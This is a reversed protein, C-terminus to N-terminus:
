LLFDAAGVPLEALEPAVDSPDPRPDGRGRGFLTIQLRDGEAFSFDEIQRFGGFRLEAIPLRFTDAGPGGHLRDRGPGDVLLDDGQGGWLADNGRGGELRDDGAFGYVREPGSGGTLTDGGESGLLTRVGDDPAAVVVPGIVPGLEAPLALRGQGNSGWGYVVGDGDRALTHNTGSSLEVVDVNDLAEVLTPTLATDTDGTTTDLGLWGENNRGWGHVDGDETLASAWRAGGQVEVMGDPLGQPRVPEVVNERDAETQRLTGDGGPTGVLLQGFATEGWGYVAGSAAVAYSTNNAATVDVIAEPLGVAVPELVSRLNQGADDVGNPGIQNRINGGFAFV